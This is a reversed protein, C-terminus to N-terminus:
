SEDKGIINIRFKERKLRGKKEKRKVLIKWMGIRFKEMIDILIRIEKVRGM